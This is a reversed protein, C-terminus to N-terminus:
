APRQPNTDVNLLENWPNPNTDSAKAPEGAVVAIKGERDVEVRAITLGARRVGRIARHLETLKFKNRAGAVRAM